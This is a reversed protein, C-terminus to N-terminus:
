SQGAAALSALHGDPRHLPFSAFMESLVKDITSDPEEISKRSLRGEAVGQWVLEKKHADVLDVSLTGKRYNVTDLESLGLRTGVVGGVPTSRLEQRDVVSLSFNVRLDPNKEDYVYNRRQLEERTAEKLRGSVITTYLSQDTSVPEFFAFTHYAGADLSPAKDVRIEPRSACGAAILLSIAFGTVTAARVIPRSFPSLRM